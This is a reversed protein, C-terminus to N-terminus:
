ENHYPHGHIITFARYVQELLIVRVLQHSFTMNSLSLKHNARFYVEKSFGYAGGICFVLNGSTFALQKDLFNSFDISTMQKGREDLLILQDNTSIQALLKKGEEIKLQETPLQNWKKQSPIEEWQIPLFRQIRKIYESVGQEVFGRNTNHIVIFKLAM